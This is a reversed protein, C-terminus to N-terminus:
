TNKLKKELKRISTDYKSIIKTLERKCRKPNRSTKCRKLEGQIKGREYKHRKLSIEIVKRKLKSIDVEQLQLYTLYETIM